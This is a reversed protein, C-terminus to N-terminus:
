KKTFRGIGSKMEGPVGLRKSVALVSKEDQLRPDNADVTRGRGPHCLEPPLIELVTCAFGEAVLLSSVLELSVAYPPGGTHDSIPFILTLVEGGTKCLAGM